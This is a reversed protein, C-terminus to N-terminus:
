DKIPGLQDGKLGDAKIYALQGKLKRIIVYDKKKHICILYQQVGFNARGYEDLITLALTM